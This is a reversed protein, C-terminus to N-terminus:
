AARMTIAGEILASPLVPWSACCVGPEPDLGAGDTALIQRTRRAVYDGLAVIVPPAIDIPKGNAVLQLSKELAGMTPGVGLDAHAADKSAIEHIM